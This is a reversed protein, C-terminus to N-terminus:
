SVKEGTALSFVTLTNSERAAFKSQGSCWSSTFFHKGGHHGRPPPKYPCEEQIDIKRLPFSPMYAVVLMTRILIIVEHM